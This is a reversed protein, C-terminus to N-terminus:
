KAVVAGPGNASRLGLSLLASDSVSQDSMEGLFLGLEGRETKVM